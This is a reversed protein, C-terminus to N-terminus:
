TRRRRAASRSRRRWRASIPPRTRRATAPSPAAGAPGRARAAVVQRARHRARDSQPIEHRAGDEARRRSAGAAGGRDLRRDAGERRRALDPRLAARGLAGAARGAAAVARRRRRADRSLDQAAGRSLADLPPEELRGDDARPEPLDNPALGEMFQRFTFNTMDHYRGDRVVFYMPVDLAWDVYQEFGFGDLFAFPLMGTRNRIPTAGSRPATPSFATRGTRPSPRTPSSRPRSRSCRWASACSTACTPKARFFRPEGARHLHPVDHRPRARRGEAHLRGHDQLAVEAHGADRLAEVEPEHRPRPLRHRAPRRDAAGARSARAGRPLHSAAIKLPAGSLEFQGGPELSIAGGGVPDALGIINEGDHIPEWGLLSQMGELLARIGRRGEYPVPAHGDKYFGFKEHETGIRWKERPKCGSELHAALQDRSEIPTTDATDRAMTEGAFLAPGYDPAARRCLRKDGIASSHSSSRWRRSPPPTPACSARGSRCRPSTPGARSSRRARRRLIRGGARHAAGGPGRPLDKLADGPNAVRRRRTASSSAARRIGTARARRRAEAACRDRPDRPHRM